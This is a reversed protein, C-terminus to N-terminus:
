LRCVLLITHSTVINKLQGQAPDLSWYGAFLKISFIVATDKTGCLALGARMEQVTPGSM